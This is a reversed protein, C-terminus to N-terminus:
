IITFKPTWLGKTKKFLKKNAFKDLTKFFTSKKMKFYELYMDLHEFTTDADYIKALEVGQSRTMAGRRIDIGIDQTGRGFGYKLLMIYCHLDYLYTDNQSFNTYTGMNSKDKEEYNYYKKAYIYNRYPDWNEFYSWHTLKIDKNINNLDWWKIDKKEVHKLATYYEQSLYVQKVFDIDFFANNKLDTKGGYEAEGDEGYFIAKINFNQAVKLVASFISIVWGHLPRGHNIFGYKNTRMLSDHPLNIEILNINNKKFNELNKYGLKTRLPPNVTVCLPNLGHKEKLNYTVYSGDKGGSVPVIVDFENKKNKLSKIFKKLELQRKNWDINKKQSSWQCANCVNEKDFTIRPRTSTNLCKSCWSIHKNKIM